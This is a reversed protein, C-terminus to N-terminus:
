APLNKQFISFVQDASSAAIIADKVGDIRLMKMIKSLLGLYESSQNDSAIVLIILNVLTGDMSDFDIGSPSIGVAFSLKKVQGVKAHPIAIGFGIGTSMMEEREKLIRTLHSVERCIDTGEFSGALEEIALLKNKTELFKIRESSLYEALDM